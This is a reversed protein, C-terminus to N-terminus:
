HKAVCAQWLIAADRTGYLALGLRGVVHPTWEPDEKPVDVDLDRKAEAHFHARKADNLMIHLGQQRSAIGMIM